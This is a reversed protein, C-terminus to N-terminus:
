NPFSGRGYQERSTDVLTLTKGETTMKVLSTGTFSSSAKIVSKGSTSTLPTDMVIRATAAQTATESQTSPTDTDVALAAPLMTCIMMVALFAPLLRKRM